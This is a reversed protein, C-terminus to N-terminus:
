QPLIQKVRASFNYPKTTSSPFDIVWELALTDTTDDYWTDYAAGTPSGLATTDSANVFSTEMKQTMGFSGDPASGFPNAVHPSDEYLGVQGGSPESVSWGHTGLIATSKTSLSNLTLACHMEDASIGASNFNCSASNLTVSTGANTSTTNSIDFGYGHLPIGTV